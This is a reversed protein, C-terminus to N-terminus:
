YNDYEKTFIREDILDVAPQKKKQAMEEIANNYGKYQTKMENIKRTYLAYESDGYEDKTSSQYMEDDNDNENNNNKNSQKKKQSFSTTSKNNDTLYDQFRKVANTGSFYILASFLSILVLSLIIVVYNSTRISSLKSQIEEVSMHLAM